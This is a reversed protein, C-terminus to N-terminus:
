FKIDTGLMVATANASSDADKVDYYGVSGRFNIGPIVKYGVGVSYRDLNVTNVDDNKNYYSAGYVFDGMTYDAGVVSYKATHHAAGLDDVQYAAGLGVDGVKFSLGANWAKRDPASGSEVQAKTYGGGVVYSLTENIKNEFRAAGEWINSTATTHTDVDNGSLGRSTGNSEPTYSIGAQFGSFLPSIYTIKDYKASVDQDYDTETSTGLSIGAAAYNIPTFLQLRGDVNPDASPAVVQLVYPAGYTRGFNVKGWAGSGFIYSEDVYFDDAGDAQGEIHAGVTLGNPLETKGDFHVETQRLFDTKRVGDGDQDVYSAYGKFYGGLGLKVASDDAAFAPFAASVACLAAGCLLLTKM